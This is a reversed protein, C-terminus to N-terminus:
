GAPRGRALEGKAFQRLLALATARESPLAALAALVLQSQTLSLGRRELLLRGLWRL